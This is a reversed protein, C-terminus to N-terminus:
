ASIVTCINPERKLNGIQVCEGKNKGNEIGALFCGTKLSDEHRVSFNNGLSNSHTSKVQIFLVAKIHWRHIFKNEHMCIYISRCLYTNKLSTNLINKIELFESNSFLFCVIQPQNVSSKLAFFYLINSTIRNRTM